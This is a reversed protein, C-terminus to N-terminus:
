DKKRLLLPPRQIFDIFKWSLFSKKRLMFNIFSLQLHLFQPPFNDNQSISRVNLINHALIDHALTIFYITFNRLYTLLINFIFYFGTYINWWNIHSLLLPLVSNSIPWAPNWYLSYYCEIKYFLVSDQMAVTYLVPNKHSFLCFM